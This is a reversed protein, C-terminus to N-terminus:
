ILATCSSKSYLINEAISMALITESIQKELEQKEMVM